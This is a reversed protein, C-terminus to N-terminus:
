KQGHQPCSNSTSHDGQEAQMRSTLDSLLGETAAGAKPCGEAIVRARSHGCAECSGTLADFSKPCESSM